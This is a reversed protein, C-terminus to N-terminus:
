THTKCYHKMLMDNTAVKFHLSIEEHQQIFPDGQSACISTILKKVVSISVGYVCFM